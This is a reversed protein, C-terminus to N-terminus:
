LGEHSSWDSEGHHKVPVAWTAAVKGGRAQVHRACLWDESAFQAIRRGHHRVIRTLVGFAFDDWWPKRLDILLLGNNLLLVEGPNCVDKPVFTEPLRPRDDNNVYRLVLFPDNEAGIATSTRVKEPEKIPIVSSIMDLDLREMEGWLIDLWHQKLPEVDSHIMALHTPADDAGADRRDLAWALLGNFTQQAASSAMEGHSVIDCRKSEAWYYARGAAHFAKGGIPMTIVVRPRFAAPPDIALRHGNSPRVTLVDNEDRELTATDIASAGSLIPATRPGEGGRVRPDTM